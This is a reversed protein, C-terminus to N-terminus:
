TVPGEGWGTPRVQLLILTDVTARSRRASALAEQLAEAAGHSVLASGFDLVRLSRATAVAAM